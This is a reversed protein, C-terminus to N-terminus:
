GQQEKEDKLIAEGKTLWSIGFAIIALAELWFIPDLANFPAISANPLVHQLVSYVLLLFVCVSMGYGCVRYVTNRQLKRITPIPTNTKTFLHLCFVILTAFFCAAFGLHFYGILIQNSTAAGDPATPCLSIGVAFVCALKSLVSDLRGYGNYALLFFGIAWLTGVLVNRMRTYYYGSISGQLGTHFLLLAGLAVVFPLAVGLVGIAIRLTLYSFVMSSDSTPDTNMATNM